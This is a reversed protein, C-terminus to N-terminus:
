GGACGRAVGGAALVALLELDGDGRRDAVARGRRAAVDAVGAGGLPHGVGPRAGRGAMVAPAAAAAGLQRRRPRAAGRAVVLKTAQGALGPAATVRNLPEVLAREVASADLSELFPLPRATREVLAEVDVEGTRRLVVVRPFDYSLFSEDALQLARELGFLPPAREIRALPEFGAEGSLLLRYLRGTRPFRERNVLVTRRVRNSTLVVWDSSALADAWRRVKGEDDPLDYSPLDLRAVDPLSVTEDWHEFAVVQDHAM